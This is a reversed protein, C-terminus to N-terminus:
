NKLKPHADSSGITSHSSRASIIQSSDSSLLTSRIREHLNVPPARDTYRCSVMLCLASILSILRERVLADATSINTSNSRSVFCRNQPLSVTSSNRAASLHCARQTQYIGGSFQIAKAITAPKGYCRMSCSQDEAHVPVIVNFINRALTRALRTSFWLGTSGTIAATWRGCVSAM